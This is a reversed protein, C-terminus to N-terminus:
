GDTPSAPRDGELPAGGGLPQVDRLITVSVSGSQHVAEFDVALWTIRGAPTVKLVASGNRPREIAPPAVRHLSVTNRPGLRLTGEARDRLEFEGSALVRETLDAPPLRTRLAPPLSQNLRLTGNRLTTRVTRGSGNRTESVFLPEVYKGRTYLYSITVRDPGRREITRRVSFQQGPGQVMMVDVIRVSEGRREADDAALLSVADVAGQEPIGPAVTPEDPIPAPSVTTTREDTFGACGAVLLGLVLALTGLLRRASAAEDM